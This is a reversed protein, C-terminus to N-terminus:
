PLLSEVVEVARDLGGLAAVEDALAASRAAVEPTTVADLAARLGDVDVTASDIRVAVGAAVLADANDFQDVDQPAAIMPTGTVLGENAGGMGAHTLFAAAHDLIERQPVWPHIEVNPPLPRGGTVEEVTVHRGVQLVLHWDPRDGFAALCRRYLEPQKTFATGLSVLLVRGSAPPTWAAADARRVAPGTFTYVERDVRDAHPQLSEPVLVVCRPPRGLYHLPDDTVGETALMARQRELYAAGRPDGRVWSTFEAMDEEYGEWAVYTPSLQLAPIGWADALLRAPIGAIDYLFLDPRDDAFRERVAPLMVEYEDQFRALHDIADGEFAEEPGDGEGRGAHNTRPLVSSYPALEAGTAEIAERFSPDNVYTVRHGREVLRRVVELSPNVHGPAPISVMALHAM